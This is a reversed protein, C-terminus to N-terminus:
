TCFFLEKALKGIIMRSLVLFTQTRLSVQQFVYVLHYEAQYGAPHPPPMASPCPVPTFSIQWSQHNSFSPSLYILTWQVVKGIYINLNEM